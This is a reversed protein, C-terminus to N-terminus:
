KLKAVFTMNDRGVFDFRTIIFKFYKRDSDTYLFSETDLISKDGILWVSGSASQLLDEFMGQSRIIRSGTIYNIEEGNRFLSFYGPGLSSSIVIYDVKGTYWHYLGFHYIEGMAM